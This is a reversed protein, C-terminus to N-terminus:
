EEKGLKEYAERNSEMIERSAKELQEKTPYTADAPIGCPQEIITEEM